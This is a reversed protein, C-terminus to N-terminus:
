GSMRHGLSRSIAAAAELVLLALDDRRAQLRSSPAAVILAGIATGTADRIASAIGTVGDAAQDVTQAVGKERAAAIAEALRRRDTETNGTLQQPKLHDLYRQVEEESATALLVRGGATCYLPRRDGVAVAFRVSNRSEIVDVYTMTEGGSDRVAFLVTEGSRDVLRRMGERVLDSSQLHRRAELLASGLGFAGPGLRYAGESAVVCDAEALGRLLAAVSSKPANLVRSLHALSIPAPSACLAELIQIVRAVSQPSNLPRNGTLMAFDSEM